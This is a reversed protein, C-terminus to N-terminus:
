LTRDKRNWKCTSQSAYWDCMRGPSGLTLLPYQGYGFFAEREIEGRGGIVFREQNRLNL